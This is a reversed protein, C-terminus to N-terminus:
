KTNRVGNEDVEYEDIKTSVALTGDAYFYYWKGEIQLWKGSTMNGYTDFYYRNNNGNTGLDWFGVLLTNGSYFHWNGTDDKVWGTKLAGNDNFYYKVGDITQTGTLAKGDKYYLFQGDDNKAWSQATAPDITLKSYRHLMSSIEARTASSKPNFKNGSGGMMIGAQQMATVATKYTSGIDSADAYTTAERTIPLKYGTAKAFNAFIVAIEERTIALDPAFQGNGDGQVIGKKYAWEIYPAYYSDTHVDNFSSTTFGSMDAGSLRGLVTVLMGRTMATDPSFTSDSTGSLLGRGVVCDISEKAWHDAIDTFKASPATYGIGFVSFNNTGFIVCGSNADYASSAIRVAEGSGDVTVAYLYGAAENKGPTCPIALTATGTGLSTITMSKGDKTTSITIDYANRVGSATAPKITFIVDGDGKSQIELLANADLTIGVPIGTVEFLKAKESVLRNLGAREMTVTIATTPADLAVQAGIGYPSRSQKKAEALAKDLATKIMSNTITFTKQTTGATSGTVSIVTPYDPQKGTVIVTFYTGSDSSDDSSSSGSGGSSHNVTIAANNSNLAATQIGNVSTNENTVTCYYYLTGTTSTDPTYSDATAGNIAAGGTNTNMANKYWQYSLTGGDSVSAAVSLATATNGQTYTGNQPQGSINPTEANVLANVTITAISSTATATQVGSVGTNTNTVICYYYLSGVSSTDPTYNPNNTGVLTGGTTSNGTNQYWQYSLTGGDSVSAAVSLATATNGQTYTANQPQVTINPMEANVLANVIIAAVGSTATATQSGSVSTNTNTVECYYYFTGVTGTGPTYSANDTGVATGGTNSNVTNKYWQYSLTGSDTVNATVSLPTVMGGQNYTAGQPQGSINPMEANVLANVTVAAVGSTATASQIGSVGTNTNTVVCYYYLTGITNTVPTYNTSNTGVPTGGAVSNSANKYWQYSLTGGDSVSAAVSLATAPNGQTYTGNQPQGSINPTEANVLANVTVATVGSTATATQSGNVGANTNTVICYYYLTGVTGTDPAYSASDTGVLTGGTTSNGTNKYWQYSLSGGDSVSATVSLPTTTDGQNYVADQPQGTISPLEANGVRLLTQSESTGTRAWTKTYVAGGVDPIVDVKASSSSNQPLWAYLKGGNTTVVDDSGYPLTADYGIAGVPVNDGISPNGVTLTNLFVNASQGNTPQINVDGSNVSGGTITLTGGSSQYGYGISNATVTGGSITINGGNNWSGGGIGAGWVGNAIVTGGSIEITGGSGWLGGGIGAGSSGSNATITGGNIKITGGNYFYADAGGGIGAGENGGYANLSAAAAGSITLTSNSNVQLGAKHSGSKLTNTGSLTLNVVSSGTLEFACADGIASVDISMGNLTVDVTVGDAIQVQRDTTTGAIAVPGSNITIEKTITNYNYRGGSATAGASLAADSDGLDIVSATSALPMIGMIVQVTITPLEVGDALSWAEDLAPTFVYTGTSEPDYASESIWELVPVAVTKQTGDTDDAGSSGLTIASGTVSQVRLSAGDDSPQADSPTGNQQKDADSGSANNGSVSDEGATSDDQLDTNTEATNEQAPAGSDQVSGSDSDTQEASTEVEVTAMLSAPLNLNELSTGLPVAQNKVSDELPEFAIITGGESEGVAFVTQPLTGLALLMALGLALLRKGPKNITKNM